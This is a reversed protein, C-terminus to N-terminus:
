PTSFRRINLSLFSAYVDVSDLVLGEAATDYRYMWDQVTMGIELPYPVSRDDRTLFSNGGSVFKGSDLYDRYALM